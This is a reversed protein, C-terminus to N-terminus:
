SLYDSLEQMMFIITDTISKQDEDLRIFASAHLDEMNKQKIDISYGAINKDKYNVYLDYDTNGIVYMGFSGDGAEAMKEFKGDMKKEISKLAKLIRNFAKKKEKATVKVSLKSVPGSVGKFGYKPSEDLGFDRELILRVSERDIADGAFPTTREELFTNVAKKVQAKTAGIPITGGRKYFGHVYNVFKDTAKKGLNRTRRSSAGTKKSAAKKTKVKVGKPPLLKRYREMNDGEEWWKKGTGEYMDRYLQKLQQRNM